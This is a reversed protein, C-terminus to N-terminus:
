VIGVVTGAAELDGYERRREAGDGAAGGDLQAAAAEGAAGRVGDAEAALFDGGGEVGVPGHAAHRRRRRGEGGALDADPQREVAAVLHAVHRRGEHVGRRRRGGQDLRDEARDAAACEHAEPDLRLCGAEDGDGPGCDRAAEGAAGVVRRGVHGPAEAVLVTEEVPRGHATLRRRAATAALLNHEDREVALLNLPTTAASRVGRGEEEVRWRRRLGDPRAGPRAGAARADREAGSTDRQVARACRELAFKPLGRAAAAGGGAVFGEHAGRRGKGDVVAVLRVELRVVTRPRLGERDLEVPLLHVLEGGEGDELRRDCLADRRRRRERRAALADGNAAGPKRGARRGLM